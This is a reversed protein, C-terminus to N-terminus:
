AKERVESMRKIMRRVKFDIRDSTDKECDFIIKLSELCIIVDAIEDIIDIRREENLGYRRAKLLAKTLESSEEFFLDIISSEGYFEIAKQYIKNRQEITM